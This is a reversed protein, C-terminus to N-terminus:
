HKGKVRRQWMKRETAFEKKRRVKISDKCNVEIFYLASFFRQIAKKWFSFNSGRYCSESGGSLYLYEKIKRIIGNIKKYPELDGQAVTECSTQSVCIDGSRIYKLPLVRLSCTLVGRSNRRPFAKIETMQPVYMKYIFQLKWKGAKNNSATIQSQLWETGRHFSM